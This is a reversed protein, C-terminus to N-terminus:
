NFYRLWLAVFTLASISDSDTIEGRFILEFSERLPVVKSYSIGEEAQRHDNTQYLGTALFVHSMQGSIGNMTHFKGIELWDSAELGTEEKLERKAANLLDEADASGAPIEWGFTKTTYRFQGVLHIEHGDTLAAIHVSPTTEIISYTGASGDPRIVEDELLAVWRNRYVVKSSLTKWPNELKLEKIYACRAVAVV